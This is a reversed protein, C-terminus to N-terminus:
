AHEGECQWTSRWVHLQNGELPATPVLFRYGRRHMTEIYRPSRADDGLINRIESICVALSGEGVITNPWVAGLLEGKTIMRGANTVLYHLVAFLKPTLRIPSQAHWLCANAPDLCYDDFGIQQEENM